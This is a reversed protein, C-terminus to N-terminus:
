KVNIVGPVSVEVDMTIDTAVEITVVLKTVTFYQGSSVSTGAAIATGNNLKGEVTVVTLAKKDTVDARNTYTDDGYRVILAQGLVAAVNAGAETNSKVEVTPKAQTDKVTFATTMTVNAHKATVTYTGAALNKTATGGSVNLATVTLAGSSVAFAAGTVTASGAIDNYLVKGNADKVTFTTDTEKALDIGEAMGIMSVTIIKSTKNDNDVKIDAGDNEVNVRWSTAVGAATQKVSVKVTKAVVEKGDKKYSIKYLYDGKIDNNAFTIEKKNAVTFDNKAAGEPASLCEVSLDSSLTFDDGYQDKVTAKVTKTDGALNKSVTVEYKDLELSAAAREAVVDVAVSNVVKGDKDKVLIYVPGTKLANIVVKKTAISTGAIMLATKDSTEISYKSYETDAIEKGNADSIKFYATKQENVAIKKTDKAKDFSAKGADDIRVDFASVAAQDAATITVKNPGINGEPKGNQDYKGSKYTIEATATDGVKNLYLKSGNTYGNGNANITFDYNADATGYALEKVAVGNADKAVLKIETETAYPITVPDVAISAVQGDSAKFSKTVGNLTVDYNQGDKLESFLTLTVKTADKSDVAVKSVPYVVKTATNVISFDTTKLDKTDGAIEAALETLKTQTVSKFVTKKVTVKATAKVTKTGCKASATITAEGEAVAKVTGDNAVTAIKEDSTTYTVSSGSSAPAVKSTLKVDEGIALTAETQNLAISPTKVTVACKLTKSLKKGKSSKGTVKVTVTSKGAKVAKVTITKKSTKVTAVSKKSSKSTVKVSKWSSPTTVKLKYSKGAYYTKKTASLKPQAAANASSVPVATIVMAAALTTALVKKFSKM